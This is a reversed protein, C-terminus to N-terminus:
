NKRRKLTDGLVVTEGQLHHYTRLIVIDIIIIFMKINFYDHPKRFYCASYIM